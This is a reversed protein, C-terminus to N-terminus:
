YIQTVSSITIQDFISETYTVVVNSNDVAFNARRFRLKNPNSAYKHITLPLKAQDTETCSVVIGYGNNIASLLSEFTSAISSNSTFVLIESYSSDTTVVHFCHGGGGGGGAASLVGDTISLGSGVKVGGLTDASATPLSYPTPNNNSLVEGTMTLGSGIKVGGKTDASATPLTYQSGGGGASIADGITTRSGNKNIFPFNFPIPFM